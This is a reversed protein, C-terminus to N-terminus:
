LVQVPMGILLESGLREFQRNCQWNEHAHKMSAAWRALHANSGLSSVTVAVSNMAGSLGGYGYEGGVWFSRRQLRTLASEL